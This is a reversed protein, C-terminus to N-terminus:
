PAAPLHERSSLFEYSQKPAGQNPRCKDSADHFLGTRNPENGRGTGASEQILHNPEAPETRSRIEEQLTSSINISASLMTSLM